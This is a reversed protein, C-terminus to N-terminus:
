LMKLFLSMITFLVLLMCRKRQKFIVEPGIGDGSLVAIKFEHHLPYISLHNKNSKIRIESLNLKYNVLKLLKIFTKM